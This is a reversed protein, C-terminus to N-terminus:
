ASEPIMMRPPVHIAFHGDSVIKGFLDAQNEFLAGRGFPPSPFFNNRFVNGTTPWTM